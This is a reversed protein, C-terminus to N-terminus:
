YRIKDPNDEWARFAALAESMPLRELVAVNCSRVTLPLVNLTAILVSYPSPFRPM